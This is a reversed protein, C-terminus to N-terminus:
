TFRATLYKFLWKPRVYYDRYARGLMKRVQKPTLSTHKYILDYQTFDEFRDVLIYNKFKDFAPTGPYPTFVSIQAFVTNLSQAYKMTAWFSEETDGPMGLIYFCTVKIGLDELMRIRKVQEDNAIAFRKSEKITDPSISEIGVKVMELGSQRLRSVLEFDMNNLHTEIVFKFKYNSEEM